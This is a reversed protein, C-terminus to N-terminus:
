REIPFHCRVFHGPRLECLEPRVADCKEDARVCRPAFRCATKAVAEGPQPAAKVWRARLRPNHLFAVLLMVTYPHM